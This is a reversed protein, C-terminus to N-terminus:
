IQAKRKLLLCISLEKKGFEKKYNSFSMKRKLATAVHTLPYLFRKFFSFTNNKKNKRM